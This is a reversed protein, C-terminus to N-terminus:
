TVCSAFADNSQTVLKALDLGEGAARGYRAASAAYARCADSLDHERSTRECTDAIDRELGAERAGAIHGAQLGWCVSVLKPVRDAAEAVPMQYTELIDPSDSCGAVMATAALVLTRM